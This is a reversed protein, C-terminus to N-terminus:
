GLKHRRDDSLAEDRENCIFVGSLGAFLKSIKEREKRLVLLLPPRESTLRAAM